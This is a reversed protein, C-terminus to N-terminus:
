SIEGELSHRITANIRNACNAFAIMLVIASVQREDFHDATASSIEQHCTRSATARRSNEPGPLAAPNASASRDREVPVIPVFPCGLHAEKEHSRAERRM